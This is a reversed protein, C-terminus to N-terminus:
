RSILMFVLVGVNLISIVVAGLLGTEKRKRMYIGFGVTHTLIVAMVLFIPLYFLFGKM